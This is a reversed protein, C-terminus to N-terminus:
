VEKQADSQRVASCTSKKCQMLRFENEGGSALCGPIMVWACLQASETLMHVATAGELGAPLLKTDATTSVTLM